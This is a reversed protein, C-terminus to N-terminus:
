QSAIIKIFRAKNIAYLSDADHDNLLGIAKIQANNYTKITRLVANLSDFKAQILALQVTDNVYLQMAQAAQQHAARGDAILEKVQEAYGKNQQQLENLQAKNHSNAYSVGLAVLALLLVAIVILYIATPKM